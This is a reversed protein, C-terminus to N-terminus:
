VSLSLTIQVYVTMERRGHIEYLSNLMIMFIFIICHNKADPNVQLFLYILKCTLQSNYPTEAM